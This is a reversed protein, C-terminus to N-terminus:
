RSNAIAAAVAPSILNGIFAFDTRECPNAVAAGALLGLVLHALLQSVRVPGKREIEDNHQAIVEISALTGVVELFLKLVRILRQKGGAYFEIGRQPVVVIGVLAKILRKVHVAFTIIRELPPVGLEEGQIAIVHVGVLQLPEAFRQGIRIGGPLDAEKVM